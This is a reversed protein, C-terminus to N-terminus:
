HDVKLEIRETSRRLTAGLLAGYAGVTTASIAITQAIMPGRQGPRAAASFVFGLAAGGLAGAVAGAFAGRRMSPGIPGHQVVQMREIAFIAVAASRLGAARQRLVRQDLEMVLSDAFRGVAKGSYRAVGTDTTAWVSAFVPFKIRRGLDSTSLPQADTASGAFALLTLVALSCRSWMLIKNMSM